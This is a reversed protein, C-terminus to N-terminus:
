KKRADQNAELYLDVFKQAFRTRPKEWISGKPKSGRFSMIMLVNGEDNLKFVRGSGASM